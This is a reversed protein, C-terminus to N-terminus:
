GCAISGRSAPLKEDGDKPWCLVGPAQEEVVLTNLGESAGYVAAALGAPGAGIVILDYFPQDAITQMGVKEAIERNEPKQLITGDPFFMCPLNLKDSGASEILEKAEDSEEPDLWLYPM